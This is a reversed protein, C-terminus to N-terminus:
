PVGIAALGLCYLYRAPDLRSSRGPGHSTGARPDGPAPRNSPCVGAPWRACVRQAYVVLGHRAHAWPVTYFSAVASSQVLSAAHGVVTSGSGTHERSGAQRGARM